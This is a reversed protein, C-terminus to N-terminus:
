SDSIKRLSIHLRTINNHCTGINKLIETHYVPHEITITWNASKLGRFRINGRRTSYRVLKDDGSSITCKVKRLPVDVEASVVKIILSLHRIGTDHGVKTTQVWSNSLHPVYSFILKGVQHKIVDLQNLIVPIIDTSTAKKSKIQEQPVNILAEFQTITSEMEILDAGTIITLETHNKVILEIISRAKLSAEGEMGRTFYTKGKTFVKELGVNRNNGCQVAARQMYRVMTEAMISRLRNKNQTIPSIQKNQIISAKEIKLMEADFAAKLDLYLPIDKLEDHHDHLFDAARSNAKQRTIEKNNM